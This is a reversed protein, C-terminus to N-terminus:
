RALLAPVRQAYTSGPYQAVLAGGRAQAEAKRGLQVLASVALFEREAGLQGGPFEGRHIELMKLAEAPRAHVTRRAAEILAAERALSDAAPEIARRAALKPASAKPARVAVPRAPARRPGTTHAPPVPAVPREAPPSPALAVAPEVPLRAAVPRPQHLVAPVGDAVSRPAAHLRSLALWGAAGAAVVVVGSLFPWRISHIRPASALRELETGLRNRLEPPPPSPLQAARLLEVAGPPALDPRTLWREPEGQKM